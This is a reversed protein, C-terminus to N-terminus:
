GDGGGEGLDDVVPDDSVPPLDPVSMIAPGLAGRPVVVQELSFQDDTWEGLDPPQDYFDVLDPEFSPYRTASALFRRALLSQMRRVEEATLAQVYHWLQDYLVRHEDQLWELLEVDNGNRLQQYLVARALAEEDLDLRVQIHPLPQLDERTVEELPALDALGEPEPNKVENIWSALKKVPAETRMAKQAFKVQQDPDDLEAIKEAHSVSLRGEDIATKVTDPLRFLSLRHSIHSPHKGLLRAVAAQTLEGVEMMQRIANAEAMPSLNERQLNESIMAQMIEQDTEIDDRVDCRITEWGLFEAARKRRYGFVVEWEMGHTADASAPRVMIPELQGTVHMNEALEEIGYYEPRINDIEGLDELAIDRIDVPAQPKRPGDLVSVPEDPEGPEEPEDGAQAGAEVIVDLADPAAEEESPSADVDAVVGVDSAGPDLSGGPPEAVHEGADGTPTTTPEEVSEGQPAESLGEIVTDDAM